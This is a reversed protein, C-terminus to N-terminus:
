LLIHQCGFKVSDDRLSCGILFGEESGLVWEPVSRLKNRILIRIKGSTRHLFGGGQGGLIEEITLVFGQPWRFLRSEKEVKELM